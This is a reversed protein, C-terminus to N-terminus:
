LSSIKNLFIYKKKIRIDKRAKKEFHKKRKDIYNKNLNKTNYCSSLSFLIIFHPLLWKLM